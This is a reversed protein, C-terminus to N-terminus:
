LRKNEYDENKRRETGVYQTEPLAFLRNFHLYRPVTRAQTCYEYTASICLTNRSRRCDHNLSHYSQAKVGVMTM